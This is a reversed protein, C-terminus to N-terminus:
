LYKKEIEPFAPIKRHHWKNIIVGDQLIIFGPNSRVITKLAIEDAQFFDFPLNQKQQIEEISKSTSGTICYFSINRKQCEQYYKKAKELGQASSKQIDHAILLFQPGPKVLLDTVNNGSLDDIRLTNNEKVTEEVRSDIFEWESMWVSDNWPYDSSPFEKIQQTKKNKYIVYAKPPPTKAILTSGKKYPRFDIIPLRNLSYIQFLVIFVLTISVGIWDKEASCLSSIKKRQTFLFIILALLVMNKYFTQWNSMIIADGFCGCDHVLDQTALFFTIITFFVTFALALWITFKIRFKLILAVGIIFEASILAIAFYLAYPLLSEMGFAILYDEFKYVTGLPDIGKVIGSFVFVIGLLIRITVVIARM